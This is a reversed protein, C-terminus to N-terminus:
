KNIADISRQEWGHSQEWTSIHCTTHGAAQLEKDYETVYRSSGSPYVGTGVVRENKYYLLGIFLSEDHQQKTETSSAAAM